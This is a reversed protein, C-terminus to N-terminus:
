WPTAPVDADFRSGDKRSMVAHVRSPQAARLRELHAPGDGDPYVAQLLDM